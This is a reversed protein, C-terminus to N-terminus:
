DDRGGAAAEARPEPRGACQEIGLRCQELIVKKLRSPNIPKKFIVCQLGDLRSRKIVHDKDYYYGTMLIVPPHAPRQKIWTYLDYGDMDPMVVDSLVLDYQRRELLEAAEKGSAAVEVACKEKELLDKLSHCVGLDDDVVLLRLGELPFGGERRGVKEVALEKKVTLDAMRKGGLYEKTGYEGIEAMDGIRQTIEQIKSLQRETSELREAEVLYDEDVAVRAVYQKLLNVNNVLVERCNNSEHSLGVAIEGLTVLQDRRRIERLDKAFGISGAENGHEDYIISASVAVPIQDGKRTRFTTAFNRVKGRESGLGDRMGAMVKKAEERTSYIELVSKGLMEEETFGLNQRAGDNYFVVTGQKDVAIIIDPCSEVLKQFYESPQFM